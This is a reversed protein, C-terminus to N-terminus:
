AGRSSRLASRRARAAAVAGAPPAIQAAYRTVPGAWDAAARGRCPEGETEAAHVEPQELRCEAVAGERGSPETGFARMRSTTGKRRATRARGGVGSPGAGAPSRPCTTATSGPHVAQARDAQRPDGAQLLGRARRAAARPRDRRAGPPLPRSREAGGHRLADDDHGGGQLRARAPEQSEHAPLHAPPDAVSLRPVRLHDAQGEHVARRLGPGLPRAPAGGRPQLRMLDVVNVVRVKLEPLHRRMLQVAALTELTPVDGCCAM